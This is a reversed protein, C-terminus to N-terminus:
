VAVDAQAARTASREGTVVLAVGLLTIAGGIVLALTISQGLVIWGLIAAVVPNVYANTQALSLPVHTLLWTYAAYGVVGAILLYVIGFWSRASIAAVDVQENLLRSWLFFFLGGIGMEYAVLVLPDRPVDIRPTLFAGTSWLIQGVVILLAWVLQQTTFGQGTPRLLYTLGVIGILIGIWTLVHPRDGTVTRLLVGWLPATAVLLAAVGIPVYREALAIVGIGGSLMGAGLLGGAVAQRVPVKLVHWGRVIALAIAMVVGAGTIRLGMAWMPPATEIALAIGLYTSGWLIYVLWLNTWVARQSPPSVSTM